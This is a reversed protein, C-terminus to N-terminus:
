DPGTLLNSRHFRGGGCPEDDGGVVLGLVDLRDDDRGELLEGGVRPHQHDVVGLSHNEDVGFSLDGIAGGPSSGLMGEEAEVVAGVDADAVRHLTGASTAHAEGHAALLRTREVLNPPRLPADESLPDDGVAGHSTDGHETAVPRELAGLHGLHGYAARGDDLSLRILRGSALPAVQDTLPFVGHSEPM